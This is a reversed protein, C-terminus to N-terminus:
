LNGTDNGPGCGALDHRKVDVGPMDAYGANINGVGVYFSENRLKLSRTIWGGSRGTGSGTKGPGGLHAIEPAIM